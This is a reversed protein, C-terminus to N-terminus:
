LNLLIWAVLFSLQSFFMTQLMYPLCTKVFMLMKGKETLFFNSDEFKRQFSNFIGGGILILFLLLAIWGSPAKYVTIILILLILNIISLIGIEFWIGMKKIKM